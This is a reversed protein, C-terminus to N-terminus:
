PASSSAIRESVFDLVLRAREIAQASDREDFADAPIGGPLGNPYRTPIYHRDLAAVQKRLDRFTSDAQAADDCLEAVSHGRVEDAGSAYLYAKLAKEAAQQCHFCALNHRAGQALYQADSLDRRAQELWRGSENQADPKM